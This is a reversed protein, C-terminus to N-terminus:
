KNENDIFNKISRASCLMHTRVENGARYLGFGEVPTGSSAMCEPLPLIREVPYDLTKIDSCMFAVDADGLVVCISRNELLYTSIDFAETFCYVPIKSGVHRIWGISNTCLDGTELDHVSGFTKIEDGRFMMRTGDVTVMMLKGTVPQAATSKEALPM